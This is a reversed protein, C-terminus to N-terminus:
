DLYYELTCLGIQYERWALDVPLIVKQPSTNGGGEEMDRVNGTGTKITQKNKDPTRDGGQQKQKM